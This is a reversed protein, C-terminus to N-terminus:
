YCVCNVCAYYGESVVNMWGNCDQRPHKICSLNLKRVLTDYAVNACSGGDIIMSCVKNQIYCRTHFINETASRCWRRQNPHEACVKYGLGGRWPFKM